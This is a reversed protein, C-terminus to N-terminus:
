AHGFKHLSPDIEAQAWLGEFWKRRRRALAMRLVNKEAGPDWFAGVAFVKHHLTALTHHVESRMVAQRFLSMLNYALMAMGLAAETAWFQEMNFSDLGFDAKLEKIRNECDARGRYLRWVQLAPLELSTVLAGYRWGQIDPDDAFLKLTKGPAQERVKVSQRVVVIRRQEKWLSGQYSIEGIELGPEIVWFKCQSVMAQQLPQTLRASIIYAIKRDSLFNMVADDFFGSDARLLGVTKGGLHRLTSALFELINNSSSTNGPRLWFNAVMRSEAIFALLPHHSNRGRKNPNYGRAAGQQQGNRTIVTSDVDLTLKDISLGDFLWRYVKEQVAENKGMDFRNFFRMIAKHGAVKTWGFLRTLTGDMRTIDAHAFRNAGCWISVLFQEILQLPEYGRNSGPPPLDWLKSAGALDISKLMRHMLAMGGWATIERSTFRIDFDAKQVMSVEPSNFLRIIEFPIEL